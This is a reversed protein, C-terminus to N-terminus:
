GACRVLLGDAAHCMMQRPTRNRENAAHLDGGHEVLLDVVAPWAKFVASHLATDGAENRANVDAGLALALRTAALNPGEDAHLAEAVEPPVRRDHRDIEGNPWRAGSAMMLPTTGDRMPLFPDAGSEALIRMIGVDAYKAALLFPTAGVLSGPLIWWHTARPVRSGKTLRVDPDAGYALLTKVLAADARLVATHLAAYGAGAADPEAGRSLLYAALEGHGSFSAVVLASAGDPATENVDAGADLLLRASEVGGQRAAFLLPTFGGLPLNGARNAGRGGLSVLLSRAESRAHVDAGHELLARVVDPHGQAAAWMLATQGRSSERADVNDAGADFLARVAGAAGTRACTMLVTEGMSTAANPDAGAALLREVVPASRNICALSLPTVGYANAAGPRAGAELLVDVAAANDWRAAWHLVTAGDGEPANVDVGQEILARVAADDGNRVAEKLRVDAAEASLGAGALLVIMWAIVRTASGTRVSEGERRQRRLEDIVVQAPRVRGIKASAWARSIADHLARRETASLDDREEDVVAGGNLTPHPPRASTGADRM